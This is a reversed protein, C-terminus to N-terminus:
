LIGWFNYPLNDSHVVQVTNTSNGSVYDGWTFEKINFSDEPPMRGCYKCALTREKPIFTANFDSFVRTEMILVRPKVGREKYFEMLAKNVTEPDLLVPNSLMTEGRNKM